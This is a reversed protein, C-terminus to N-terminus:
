RDRHSAPSEGRVALYRDLADEWTPMTAGAAVIKGNSLACFRPHAARMQVESMTIPSLLPECGLRIAAARAVEFWTARGTNVCHYLGVAANGMVLSRTAAAVDPVYSPSVTRDTFGRVPRGALMADVMRDVTSGLPRATPDVAEAGGGFLSEVRLVYHRPAGRAFWEGLLKSTAYVSQPEPSASEDYPHDATGDFVFDTGYHVLVAGAERAAAALSRVGFGNVQMAAVPDTEAGDVDNYAACNLIVDPRTERTVQLVAEHDCIDLRARPFAVVEGDQAFVRSIELGLQGAAGTVLAKM